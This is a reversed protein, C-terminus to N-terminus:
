FLMQLELFLGINVPQIDDLVLILPRRKHFDEITKRDLESNELKERIQIVNLHM